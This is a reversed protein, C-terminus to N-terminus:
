PKLTEDQEAGLDKRDREVQMMAAFACVYLGALLLGSILPREWFGYFFAVSFMILLLIGLIIGHVKASPSDPDRKGLSIWLTIGWVLGSFLALGPDMFSFGFGTLLLVTATKLVLVKSTM